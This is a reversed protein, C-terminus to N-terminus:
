KNGKLLDDLSPNPNQEYRPADNFKKFIKAGKPLASEGSNNSPQQGKVSGGESSSPNKKKKLRARSILTSFSFFTLELNYPASTLSKYILERPCGGKILKNIEDLLESIIVSNSRAYPADKYTEFTILKEEEAM